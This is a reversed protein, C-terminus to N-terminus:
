FVERVKVSAHHLHPYNELSDGELLQHGIWRTALKDKDPSLIWERSKREVPKIRYDFNWWNWQWPELTAPSRRIDVWKGNQLQQIDKGDRWSELISIMEETTM